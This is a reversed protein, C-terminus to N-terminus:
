VIEGACESIGCVVPLFQSSFSSIFVTISIPAFSPCNMWRMLLVNGRALIKANSGM